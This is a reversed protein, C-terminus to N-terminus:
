GGPFCEEGAKIVRSEGVIERKRDITERFGDGVVQSERFISANLGLIAAIPGGGDVSEELSALKIRGVGLQDVPQASGEAHGRTLGFGLREFGFELGHLGSGVLNEREVVLGVGDCRETGGRM